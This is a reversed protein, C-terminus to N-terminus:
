QGDGDEVRAVQEGEFALVPASDKPRLDALGLCPARQAHAGAPSTALRAAAAGANKSDMAAIEPPRMAGTGPPTSTRSPSPRTMPATPILPSWGSRSSFRATWAISLAPNVAVGSVGFPV